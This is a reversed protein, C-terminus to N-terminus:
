KVLRTKNGEHNVWVDEDLITSETIQECFGIRIMDCQRLLGIRKTNKIAKVLSHVRKQSKCQILLKFGRESGDQNRGFDGFAQFQNTKYWQSYVILKKRIVSLGETSRDIELLFLAKIQPKDKVQLVFLGDPYLVVRENRQSRFAFFIRFREYGIRQSAKPSITQETVVTTTGPQGSENTQAEAEDERERWQEFYSVFLPSGVKKHHRIALELSLRFDSLDLAHSFFQHKVKGSKPYSYVDEGRETLLRAGEPGLYYAFPPKPDGVRIFPRYRNLFFSKYLLKLRRRITQVPSSVLKAIQFTQLFRYRNVAKIIEYDRKTMQFQVIERVERKFVPDYSRKHEVRPLSSETGRQESSTM